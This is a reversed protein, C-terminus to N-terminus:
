QKNNVYCYLIADKEFHKKINTTNKTVDTVIRTM